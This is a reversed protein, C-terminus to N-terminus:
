PGEPPPCGRVHRRKKRHFKPPPPPAPSPPLQCLPPPPPSPPPPSPPPPSSPRCFKSHRLCRPIYPKMSSYPPRETILEKPTEGTTLERATISCPFFLLDTALLFSLIVFDKM